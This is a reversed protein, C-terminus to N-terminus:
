YRNEGKTMQELGVRLTDIANLMMELPRQQKNWHTERYAREMQTNKRENRSTWFNQSQHHYKNADMPTQQWRLGQHFIQNNNNNQVWNTKEQRRDQTTDQKSINREITHLYWCGKRQCLGKLFLKCPEPHDLKCSKNGCKGNTKWNRCIEKHTYRCRKGFRCEDNKFYRCEEVRSNISVSKKQRDENGESRVGDVTKLGEQNNQGIKHEGSNDRDKDDVNIIVSNNKTGINISEKTKLTNSEFNNNISDKLITIAENIHDGTDTNGIDGILKSSMSENAKRTSGCQLIEVNKDLGLEVKSSNAETETYETKENKEEIKRIEIEVEKRLWHRIRLIQERTPFLGKNENFLIRGLIVEMYFMVYIGCDYTNPQTGCVVEYIGPLQGREDVDDGDLVNTMLEKAHNWNKGKISDYHYFSHSKRYYVLLSWHSGGDGNMEDTRNNVPLFVWDSENMKLDEKLKKTTARDQFKFIQANEPRIFSVKHYPALDKRAKESMEMYISIMTCTVWQEYRLSDMDAKTITIGNYKWQQNQTINDKKIGKKKTSEDKKGESNETIKDKKEDKRGKETAEHKDEKEKNEDKKRNYGIENMRVKERNRVEEKENNTRVEVEEGEKNQNTNSKNRMCQINEETEVTRKLVRRNEIGDDGVLSFVIKSKIYNDIKRKKGTPSKTPKTTTDEMTKEPSSVEDLGRKVRRGGRERVTKMGTRGNRNTKRTNKKLKIIKIAGKSYSAKAGAEICKTCLFSEKKKETLSTLGSCKENCYWKNCYNCRVSDNVAEEECEGCPWEVKEENDDEGNQNQESNNGGNEEKSGKKEEQTRNVDPELENDTNDKNNDEENGTKNEDKTTRDSNGSAEGSREEEQGATKEKEKNNIEDKETEQKESEEMKNKIEDGM